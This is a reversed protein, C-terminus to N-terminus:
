DYNDESNKINQKRANRNNAKLIVKPEGQDVDIHISIYCLEKQFNQNDIKADYISISTVSGNNVGNAIVEINKNQFITKTQIANM